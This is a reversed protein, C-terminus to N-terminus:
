PNSCQKTWLAGIPTGDGELEGLLRWGLRGLRVALGKSSPTITQELFVGRGFCVALARVIEMFRTGHGTRHLERERSYHVQQANFPNLSVGAMGWAATVVESYEVVEIRVVDVQLEGDRHLTSWRLQARVVKVCGHENEVPLEFSRHKYAYKGSSALVAWSLLDEWCQLLVGDPKPVVADDASDM